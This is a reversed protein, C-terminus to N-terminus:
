PLLKGAKEPFKIKDVRRLEEEVSSVRRALTSNAEKLSLVLEMDVCGQHGRAQFLAPAFEELCIACTSM